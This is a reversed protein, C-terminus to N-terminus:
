KEIGKSLIGKITENEIPATNKFVDLFSKFANAALAEEDSGYLLVITVWCTYSLEEYFVKDAYHIVEAVSSVKYIQPHRAAKPDHNLRRLFDYTFITRLEENVAEQLEEPVATPKYNEQLQKLKSKIAKKENFIVKNLKLKLPLTNLNYYLEDANFIFFRQSLKLKARDLRWNTVGLIFNLYDENLSLLNYHDVKPDPENDYNVHILAKVGKGKASIYALLCSANNKLINFVISAEAAPIANIDVALIDKNYSLISQNKRDTFSGFPTFYPLKTKLKTRLIPDKCARIAASLKRTSPNSLIAILETINIEKEPMVKNQGGAITNFKSDAFDNFSINNKEKFDM